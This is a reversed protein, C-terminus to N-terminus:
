KRNLIPRQINKKKYTILWVVRLVRRETNFKVMLMMVALKVMMLLSPVSILWPKDRTSADIAHTTTHPVTYRHVNRHVYYIHKLCYTAYITYKNVKHHAHHMLTPLLHCIHYVQACRHHITRIHYATTHQMYSIATYMINYTYIYVYTVHPM